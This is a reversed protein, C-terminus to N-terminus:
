NKPYDVGWLCLGHPPALGQVPNAAARDLHNQVMEPDLQELGIKVLLGVIRRVMRHLFGNASIDFHLCSREQSWEARFVNRVTSGGPLPPSGFAGFDHTGVLMAAAQQMRPLDLQQPVRWAYRENLPDPVPASLIRYRYHRALADYRPHFVPPALTVERVGIEVPLHANLARLLVAESHNWVMDFAIVQGMAHVGTDTRGASDITEGDWGITKLASEIEGQVTLPHAQRQFGKYPTGDYAIIVKYRAM